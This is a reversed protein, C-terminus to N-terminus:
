ILVEVSFVVALSIAALTLAAFGRWVWAARGRLNKEQRTIVDSKASVLNREIAAPSKDTNLYLDTIRQASVGLRQEPRLAIAACVIGACALALAGVGFWVLRTWLQATSATIVVGAAVALFSAKNAISATRTRMDDLLRDMESSVLGLRAHNARRKETEQQAAERLDAAPSNPVAEQSNDM